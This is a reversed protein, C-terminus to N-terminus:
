TRGAELNDLRRQTQAQLATLVQQEKALLLRDAALLVVDRGNHTFQAEACENWSDNRTYPQLASTSVATVEEVADVRLALLNESASVILLPTHLGPEPVPLDFLGHLPLVPVAKGRLNLFGDLIPAQAPSQVLAPLFVLEPVRDAPLACAHGAVHFVLLHRKKGAQQTAM